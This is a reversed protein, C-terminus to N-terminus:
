GRTAPGDYVNKISKKRKQYSLELWIGISGPFLIIFLCGSLLFAWDRTKDVEKVMEVTGPLITDLSAGLVFLGIFFITSFIIPRGIVVRWLQGPPSLRLAQPPIERVPNTKKLANFIRKKEKYAREMLFAAYGPLAGFILCVIILVDWELAQDKQSLFGLILLSVLFGSLCFITRALVLLWLQGPPSTQLADSPCEQSLDVSDGPLDSESLDVAPTSKVFEKFIKNKRRYSLELVVGFFLPFFTMLVGSLIIELPSITAEEGFIAGPILLLWFIGSLSFLIRSVVIKWLQDKPHVPFVRDPGLGTHSIPELGTDLPTEVPLPEPRDLPLPGVESLHLDDLELSLQDKQQRSALA